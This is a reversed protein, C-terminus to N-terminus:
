SIRRSYNLSIRKQQGNTEDPHGGFAMFKLGCRNERFWVVKAFVDVAKKEMFQFNLKLITNTRYPKKTELRMGGKSINQSWCSEADSRSMLRNFPGDHPVVEVKRILANRPAWRKEVTPM